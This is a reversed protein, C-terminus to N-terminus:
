PPPTASKSPHAQTHQLAKNFKKTYNNASTKLDDTSVGDTYIHPADRDQWVCQPIHGLQRDDTFTPWEKEIADMMREHEDPDPYTECCIWSTYDKFEDCRILDQQILEAIEQM